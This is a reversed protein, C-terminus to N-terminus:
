GAIWVEFVGGGAEGENQHVMVKGVQAFDYFHIAAFVVEV